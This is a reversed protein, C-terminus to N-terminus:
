KEVPIYDGWINVQVQTRAVPQKEERCSRMTSNFCQSGLDMADKVNPMKSEDKPSDQKQPRPTSQEPRRPDRARWEAILIQSYESVSLNGGKLLHPQRLPALVVASLAHSVDQLRCSQARAFAEFPFTNAIIHAVDAFFEDTFPYATKTITATTKASNLNAADSLRPIADSVTPNFPLRTSPFSQQVMRRKSPRDSTCDGAIPRKVPCHMPCVYTM